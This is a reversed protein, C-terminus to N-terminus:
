RADRDERISRAVEQPSLKELVPRINKLEDELKKLEAEKVAEELAKKIIESPKLGLERLKERLKRPIKASVTVLSSM